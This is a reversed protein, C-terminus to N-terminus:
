WLRKGAPVLRAHGEPLVALADTRTTAILVQLDAQEEGLRVIEALMLDLNVDSIEEAAPSDIVILGPHRSPHGVRLLAIVTAIKLRLREGLNLKSFTTRVDGKHVDVRAARNFAVATISSLGLRQAVNLVEANLRTLLTDPEMRKLAEAQAAKLVRGEDNRADVLAPQESRKLERLQGELRAAKLRQEDSVTVQKVAAVAARYRETAADRERAAAEAAAQARDAAARAVAVGDAAAELQATAEAIRAEVDDPVSPQERDCVSCTGNAEHSRREDDITLACRPCRAPELTGFLAAASETEQLDRLRRRATREVDEAAHLEAAAARRVDDQEQAEGRARDQEAAANQLMSAADAADGDIGKRAADLQKEIDRIRDARTGADRKARREADRDTQDLAAVAVRIAEHTSFWPLGVFLQLLRGAAPAHEGLVVGYAAEPVFLGPLLSAWDFQVERGDESGQYKQWGVLRELGLRELMIRSMTSEFTKDTFSISAAAGVTVSGTLDNVTGDVMIECRENSVEVVLEAHDIIARAGDDVRERGSLLWRIVNLVTTKGASNDATGLAWVGTRPEWVFPEYPQDDRTGSFSVKQVKLRGPPPPPTWMEIGHAALVETVREVEVNAREAIEDIFDTM